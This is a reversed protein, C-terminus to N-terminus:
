ASGYCIGTMSPAGECTIRCSELHIHADKPMGYCDFVAGGDAFEAATFSSDRIIVWAADPTRFHLGHGLRFNGDRIITSYGDRRVLKKACTFPKGDIAAQLGDADDHVGDGVIRPWAEHVPLAPVIAAASVAVLGRLFSRRSLEM